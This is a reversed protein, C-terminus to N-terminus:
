FRVGLGVSAYLPPTLQNFDETMRWGGKASLELAGIAVGASAGYHHTGGANLYWGDKAEPYFYTRYWDTHTIHTIVAKDFGFEGAVFWSPRYVGLTGTVDAGFNFARHVSNETGRTLFAASVLLHVSQWHALTTRIQVRTRFDRADFDPAVVGAEVAVWVNQKFVPITRQYGVSAVLAPDLGFTTYLQNREAGSRAANWQAAVERAALASLVLAVVFRLTTKM